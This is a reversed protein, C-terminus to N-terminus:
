NAKTERGQARIKWHLCQRQVHVHIHAVCLRSSLMLTLMQTERCPHAALKREDLNGQRLLDLRQLPIGGNVQEHGDKGEDVPLM